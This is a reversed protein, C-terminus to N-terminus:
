HVWPDHQKLWPIGLIMPYGGLKTTHFQTVNHHPGIGLPLEVEQMILGGRSEEGDGMLIKAPRPMPYTKINHMRVFGLDIFNHTAGCDIMLFTAMWRQQIKIRATVIIHLHLSFSNLSFLSYAQFAKIRAGISDLSQFQFLLSSSSSNPSQNLV